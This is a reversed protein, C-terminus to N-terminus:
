HLIVVPWYVRKFKASYNILGDFPQCELFGYTQNQLGRQVQDIIIGSGFVVKGEKCLLLENEVTAVDAGTYRFHLHEKMNQLVEIDDTTLLKGKPIAESLNMNDSNRISVYAKWDGKSFDFSDFIKVTDGKELSDPAIMSTDITDSRIILIPNIVFYGIASLTLVVSTIVKKCKRQM